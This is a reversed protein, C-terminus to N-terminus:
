LYLARRLCGGSHAADMKAQSDTRAMATGQQKKRAALQKRREQREKIVQEREYAALRQRVAEIERQWRERM